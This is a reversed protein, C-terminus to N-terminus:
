FSALLRGSSTRYLSFNPLVHHQPVHRTNLSGPSSLSQQRTPCEWVSHCSISSIMVRWILGTLSIILNLLTLRMSTACVCMYSINALPVGTGNTRMNQFWSSEVWSLSSTWSTTAYMPLEEDLCEVVAAISTKRNMLDGTMALQVVDCSDLSTGRYSAGSDKGPDGVRPTLGRYSWTFLGVSTVFTDGITLTTPECYSGPTPYPLIHWRNFWHVKTFGFDGSLTSVMQYGSTSGSPTLYSHTGVYSSISLLECAIPVIILLGVALSSYGIVNAHKWPYQRSLPYTLVPLRVKM